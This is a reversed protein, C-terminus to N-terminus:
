PKNKRKIFNIAYDFKKKNIDLLEENTKENINGKSNSKMRM